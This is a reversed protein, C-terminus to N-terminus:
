FPLTAEEVETFGNNGDTYSNAKYDSNGAAQGSSTKPTLFEVDVTSIELSARPQGDNGMFANASVTGVVAVKNGKVLYKACNEGTQGWASIRFFDAEPQGNGSRRRNVAITFTCVSTGSPITKLEPDRVLNGIVTIQNM